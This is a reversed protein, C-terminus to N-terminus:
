RSNAQSLARSAFYAKLSDLIAQRPQAIPHFRRVECLADEVTLGEADCLIAIAAAPSRSVGLVCQVVLPRGERCNQRAFALLREVFPPPWPLGDGIPLHLCHPGPLATGEHLELRAWTLPIEGDEPLGYAIYLWPRIQSLPM